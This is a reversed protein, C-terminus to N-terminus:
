LYIYAGASPILDDSFTLWGDAIAQEVIYGREIKPARKMLAKIEEALISLKAASEANCSSRANRDVVVVNPLIGEDTKRLYGYGLLKDVYVQECEDLRGHVALYLTEGEKYNLYVPTKEFHRGLSIKYQQFEVPYRVGVTDEWWCGHQGVFEPEKWDISEYGTLTWEGDDPRKPLSGCRNGFNECAVMLEDFALLLLSWKAVDCGTYSVNVKAGDEHLYLDVLECLKATLSPTVARNANHWVRQEARSVIPFATEYKDGSQVMLEERVLFELEDQMYPLAIGLELSLEEATSPNEAAQLFINKYLLHHVITWPQGFKGDTGNKVFNVNEPNYSRKGFERAMYMGEKLITRIRQLRKKVADERLSLLGAIERVSKNEFYYAVILNRYNSGIFALERRLLALDERRIMEDLIEANEDCIEYDGIDSGSLYVTRRHKKEAWLSYCNRAIRWVWASFNEPVTTQLATLIQLAIEQSLDEAENGSGTKKLCFYFIKELYNGVFEAILTDTMSEGGKM